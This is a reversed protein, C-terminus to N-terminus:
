LIQTNTSYQQFPLIAYPRHSSLQQAIHFRIRAIQTRSQSINITRCKIHVSYAEFLVCIYTSSISSVSRRLTLPSLSLSGFFTFNLFLYCVVIEFVEAFWERNYSDWIGYIIQKHNLQPFPMKDNYKLHADYYLQVRRITWTLHMWHMMIWPKTSIESPM